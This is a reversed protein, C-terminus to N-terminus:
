EFSRALELRMCETAEWSSGASLGFMVGSAGLSTAGMCPATPFNTPAYATSVPIKPAAYNSVVSSNGSTNGSSSSKGGVANSSGGASASSGGLGGAGGQSSSTSAGTTTNGVSSVSNSIPSSIAGGTTGGSADITVQAYPRNFVFALVSVLVIKKLTLPPSGYSSSPSLEIRLFLGRVKLISIAPNRLLHMLFLYFMCICTIGQLILLRPINLM